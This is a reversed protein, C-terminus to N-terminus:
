LEAYLSDRYHISVYISSFAEAANDRLYDGVTAIPYARPICRTRHLNQPTKPYRIGTLRETTM